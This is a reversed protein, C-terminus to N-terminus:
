NEDLIPIEEFRVMHEICKAARPVQKYWLSDILEDAAEAYRKKSFDECFRKFSIIGKIGLNFGLYLLAMKRIDSDCREYRPFKNYLSQDIDVLDDNLIFNAQDHTIGDKQMRKFAEADTIIQDDDDEPPWFHHKIYNKLPNQSLNHGIAITWYGHIDKYPKSRYGELSQFFDLIFDDTVLPHKYKQM